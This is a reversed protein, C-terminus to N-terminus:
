RAVSAVSWPGSAQSNHAVGSKASNGTIAPLRFAPARPVARNYCGLQIGEIRRAATLWLEARRM